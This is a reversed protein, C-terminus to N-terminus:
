KKEMMEALEALFGLTEYASVDVYAGVLANIGVTKGDKPMRARLRDRAERIRESLLKSTM